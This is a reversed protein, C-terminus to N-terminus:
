SPTAGTARDALYAMITTYWEHHDLRRFEPELEQFRQQVARVQAASIDPALWATTRAIERDFRQQWEEDSEAQEPARTEAGAALDLAGNKLAAAIKKALKEASGARWGDFIISLVSSPDSGSDRSQAVEYGGHQDPAMPIEIDFGAVKITHCTTFEPRGPRPKHWRHRVAIEASVLRRVIEWASFPEAAVGAFGREVEQVIAAVPGATATKSPKALRDTLDSISTESTIPGIPELWAQFGVPTTLLGNQRYTLYAYLLVAMIEGATPQKEPPVRMTRQISAGEGDPSPTVTVNFILYPPIPGLAATFEPKEIVLRNLALRHRGSTAVVWLQAPQGDDTAPVHKVYPTEWTGWVDPLECRKSVEEDLIQVAQHHENVVDVLRLSDVARQAIETRQKDAARFQTAIPRLPDDHALDAPNGLINLPIDALDAPDVQLQDALAVWDREAEGRLEALRVTTPMFELPESIKLRKALSRREDGLLGIRVEAIRLDLVTAANDERGAPIQVMPEPRPDGVTDAVTRHRELVESLRALWAEERLVATRRSAIMNLLDRGALTVRALQGPEIGIRAATAVHKAAARETLTTVAERLSVIPLDREMNSVIRLRKMLEDRERELARLQEPVGRDTSAALIHAAPGIPDAAVEAWGSATWRLSWAVGAERRSM